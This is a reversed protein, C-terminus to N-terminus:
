LYTQGDITTQDLYSTELGKDLLRIINDKTVDPETPLRLNSGQIIVSFGTIKVDMKSTHLPADNIDADTKIESVLIYAAM